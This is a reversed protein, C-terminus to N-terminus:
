AKAEIKATAEEATVGPLSAIFRELESAVVVVKRGWRRHPLENRYIRQWVARETINLEAAAERVTLFKHVTNVEQINLQQWHVGM